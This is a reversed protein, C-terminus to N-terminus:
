ALSKTNKNGKKVIHMVFLLARWAKQVTYNVQYAWSLDSQIIIGLYKCCSAEPIKQDGLSYNLPDKVQATTFCLAKSKNPNTKMENEEAWDGLRDLDTQLKEVDKINLIKRYIICDDVFLRIKSVTDKCIANVYALFLLQGLISGQPVGSTM